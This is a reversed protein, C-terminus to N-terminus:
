TLQFAYLLYLSFVHYYYFISFACILFLNNQSKHFIKDFKRTTYFSYFKYVIPKLNFYLITNPEEPNTPFAKQSYRPFFLFNIKKLLVPGFNLFNSKSLSIDFNGNLSTSLHKKKALGLILFFFKLFLLKLLSYIHNFFITLFM